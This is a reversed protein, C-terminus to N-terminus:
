KLLEALVRSDAGFYVVEDIRVVLRRMPRPEQFMLKILDNDGLKNRDVGLKKFSPSRFNFMEAAQRGQLLTEIESRSFPTKFFDRETFEIQKSCISGVAMCLASIGMKTNEANEM